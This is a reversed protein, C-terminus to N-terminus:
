QSTEGHCTASGSHRNSRRTRNREAHRPQEQCKELDPRHTLSAPIHQQREQTRIEDRMKMPQCILLKQVRDSGPLDRRPGNESRRRENTVQRAAHFAPQKGRKSHEQRRENKDGNDKWKNGLQLSRRSRPYKEIAEICHRHAHQRPTEPLQRAARNEVCESRYFRDDAQQYQPAKLDVRGPQNQAPQHRSERPFERSTRALVAVFNGGPLNHSNGFLGNKNSNSFAYTSIGLPKPSNRFQRINSNSIRRCVTWRLPDESSQAAPQPFARERRSLFVAIRERNSIQLNSHKSGNIILELRPNAILFKATFPVGGVDPRRLLPRLYCFSGRKRGRRSSGSSRLNAIGATRSGSNAAILM